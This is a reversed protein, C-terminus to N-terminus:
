LVQEDKREWKKSLGYCDDELYCEPLIKLAVTKEERRGGIRSKMKQSPVSIKCKKKQCPNLPQLFFLILSLGELNGYCTCCNDDMCPLEPEWLASGCGVGAM